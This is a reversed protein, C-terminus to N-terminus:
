NNFLKPALDALSLRWFPWEHAYGPLIMKDFHVGQSTLWDMFQQNSKLLGDNQGCSFYLLHLKENASANVDPFVTPLAAANLEWGRGPIPPGPPAPVVKLAGPFLILGGSFSAVYSFQDLHRFGAWITQGGGMSLGAIARHDRDPITRYTKDVFPIVDKVLSDSFSLMDDILKNFAASNVDSFAAFSSEAQKTVGPAATQDWNGNTMVVIMPKAKGAAILNDLIENARGLNDWADEDGGGGHLLYFVPYRQSGDEYGAPTYVYMRREGRGLSPSPYWIQQVTGHPVDNVAFLDSGAGPITVYNLFRVGDRMVNVNGPDLIRVGDVVFTYTWMEPKLSNVTLQWIGDAGKTMPLPPSMFGPQWNGSVGVNGADPAKLRFTVAGDAAIEPSKPGMMGLMAAPPPTQAAPKPPATQQAMVATAGIVAMAASFFRTRYTKM